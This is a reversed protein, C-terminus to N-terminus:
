STRKEEKREIFPEHCEISPTRPLNLHRIRATFAKCKYINPNESVLTKKVFKMLFQDLFKLHNNGTMFKPKTELQYYRTIRKQSAKSIFQYSVNIFAINDCQMYDDDLEISLKMRETDETVLQGNSTRSIIITM